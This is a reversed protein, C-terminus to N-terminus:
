PNFPDKTGLNKPSVDVQTQTLKEIQNILKPDIKIQETAAEARESQLYEQSPVPNILVRTRWLTFGVLILVLIAILIIRHDVAKNIYLKLEKMG